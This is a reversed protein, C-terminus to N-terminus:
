VVPRCNRRAGHLIAKIWCAIRVLPCNTRTSALSVNSKFTGKVTNPKYLKIVLLTRKPCNSFEQGKSIGSSVQRPLANEPRWQTDVMRPSCTSKGLGLFSVAQRRLPSRPPPKNSPFPGKCTSRLAQLAGLLPERLSPM